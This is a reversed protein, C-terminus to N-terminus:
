ARALLRLLLGLLGIGAALWMLVTFFLRVLPESPDSRAYFYWAASFVLIAFLAVLDM